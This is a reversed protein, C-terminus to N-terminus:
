TVINANIQTVILDGSTISAPLTTATSLVFSANSATIAIVWSMVVTSSNLSAGAPAFAKSSSDAQWLSTLTANTPTLTPLVLSGTASGYVSWVVLYTGEQIWAPWQYGVSSTTGGISSGSVPVSLQGMPYTANITGILKVHDSLVDFGLASTSIPKSLEVEYSCWLEGLTVSTSAVGFSAIQFNGLDYTKQDINAALAGSRIYLMPLPTDRPNCEIPHYFSESPKCSTTYQTNDMQQKNVFASNNSNYDTAMIVGGISSNSASSAIADAYLTKFEFVMGLVKYEEFQSAIASLWPFVSPLGPQISLSQNVFTNSASSSVIDQIYERHRIVFKNNESHMVAPTQGESLISNAKVNYAGFGALKAFGAGAMGGLPGALARGVNSFTGKPVYKQGYKVFKSDYYGGRGKLVRPQSYRGKGKFPRSAKYQAKAGANHYVRHKKGDQGMEYHYASSM